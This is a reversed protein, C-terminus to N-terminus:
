REGEEFRSRAGELGLTRYRDSSVAVHLRGDATLAVAADLAGLSSGSTTAVLHSGEIAAQARISPALLVDATTPAPISYYFAGQPGWM